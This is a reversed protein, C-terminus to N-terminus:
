GDELPIGRELALWGLARSTAGTDVYNFGLTEAVLRAVTSKGSGAPGDVTITLARTWREGDTLQEQSVPRSLDLAAPAAPSDTPSAM